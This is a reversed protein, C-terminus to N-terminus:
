WRDRHIRRQEMRSTFAPKKLPHGLPVFAFPVVHEPLGLQHQVANAKDPFVATWVGGLGVAHIALLLNQTCAACDEAAYAPYRAGTVDMCVLIGVPAGSPCNDCLSTYDRVAAGNLVVFHWPQQNGASPANMAVELLVDVVSADVPQETWQRVSRRTNLVELVNTEM